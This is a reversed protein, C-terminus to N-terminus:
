QMQQRDLCNYQTQQLVSFFLFPVDDLREKLIPIVELLVEFHSGEVLRLLLTVGGVLVM